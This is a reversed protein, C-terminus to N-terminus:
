SFLQGETLNVFGSICVDENLVDFQVHLNACNRQKFMKNNLTFFHAPNKAFFFKASILFHM